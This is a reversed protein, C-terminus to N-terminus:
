RPTVSSGRMVNRLYTLYAERLASPGAGGFATGFATQSGTGAEIVFRKWAALGFRSILFSMYVHAQQYASQRTSGDFLTDGPPLSPLQGARVQDRLTPCAAGLSLGAWRYATYEASGEVIWLPVGVRQTQRLVVHTLEHALVVRRGQDTIAGLATQSIVVTGQSTTSAALDNTPPAGGRLQAFQADSGAIVVNITGTAAVQQPWIRQVWTRATAAQAALADLSTMSTAGSIRLGASVVSSGGDPGPDPAVATSSQGPPVSPTTAQGSQCGTVVQLVVVVALLRSGEVVWRRESRPLCPLGPM